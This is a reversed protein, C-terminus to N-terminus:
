AKLGKSDSYRLYLRKLAKAKDMGRAIDAATKEAEEIREACFSMAKGERMAGRLKDEAIGILTMADEKTKIHKDLFERFEHFPSRQTLLMFAGEMFDGGAEEDSAEYGLFEQTRIHSCRSRVTPLLADARAAALFILTGEHPEELTKLLKNQVAESMLEAQDIVGILYKGYSSMGLRETFAAADEVKYGTKGSQQMHVLDLESCELGKIIDNLIDERSPGSPGEIIYAHASSAGESISRILTRLDKM